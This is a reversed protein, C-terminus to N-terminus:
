GHLHAKKLVSKIYSAKMKTYRKRVYKARKALSRKLSYYRRAEGPHKRLYDRFLLLDKYGDSSKWALHLHIPAENSGYRTLFIRGRGGAKKDLEYGLSELKKVIVDAHSKRKTLALIDIVNKGGLNPVATSGIHHFELSAGLKGALRRKEAYFCRSSSPDAAKIKVTTTKRVLGVLTDKVRLLSSSIVTWLDDLCYSM